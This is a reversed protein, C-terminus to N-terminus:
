LNSVKIKIDEFLLTDEVDVRIVDEIEQNSHEGNEDEFDKSDVILEITVLKKM